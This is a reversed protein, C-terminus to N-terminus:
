SMANQLKKMASKELQRVREASVSYKEALDQLTAKEDALWRASVIDQSREDLTKLAAFLRNHSQEQWQEQEVEEALDSSTDTLYQVPSFNGAQSEDDDASLDFGMDQGAMRSEMERVEKESVGLENAVTTVEDQNFWGLRKKNKRLNFFLKRQAKTTAVKVIRWNKLVYEHIEAKIWHVAFSVLRVGVSPDFRKVAKMLGINGEQILDAQPLGYGSYSKAIHAVFRLHSMILQKAANLDGEEQLRTALKREEEAGLMPITSVSQLYGEVSASQQGTLALAYLDKTM